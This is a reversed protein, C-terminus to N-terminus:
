CRRAPARVRAEPSKWGAWKRFAATHFIFDAPRVGTRAGARWLGTWRSRRSRPGRGGQPSPGPARRCVAGGTTEREGRGRLRAFASDWYLREERFGANSLRFVSVGVAASAAAPGRTPAACTGAVRWETWLRRDSAYAARSCRSAGPGARGGDRARHRRPDGRERVRRGAPAACAPRVGCRMERDRRRRLLGRVRRPRPREM